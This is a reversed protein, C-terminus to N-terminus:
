SELAIKMTVLKSSDQEIQRLKEVSWTESIRMWEEAGLEAIRNILGSTWTAGYTASEQLEIRGMKDKKLKMKELHLYPGLMNTM